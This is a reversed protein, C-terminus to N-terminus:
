APAIAPTTIRLELLCDARRPDKAVLRGVEVGATDEVLGEALGLHLQCVTAPDAVATSEFPCTHLVVDTHDGRPLVEPDFGQRAMADCVQDVASAPGAGVTRMARGARRGVERPTDGTRIVESLL